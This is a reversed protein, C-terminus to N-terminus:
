IQPRCAIPPPVCRVVWIWFLAALAYSSLPVVFQFIDRYTVEGDRVRKAEYLFFSEDAPHLSRPLQRLYLIMGAGVLVSPM